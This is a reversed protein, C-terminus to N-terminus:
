GSPRWALPGMELTLKPLHTSCLRLTEHRPQQQGTKKEEKARAAEIKGKRENSAWKQSAILVPEAPPGRPRPQQKKRTKERKIHM